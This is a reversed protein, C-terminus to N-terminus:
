PTGEMFPVESEREAREMEEGRHVDDWGAEHEELMFRLKELVETRLPGYDGSLEVHVQLEEVRRLLKETPSM